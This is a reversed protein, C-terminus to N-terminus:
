SGCFIGPQYWNDQRYDVIKVDTTGRRLLDSLPQMHDFGCVVLITQADMRSEYIKSLMFQERKAHWSAIRQPSCPLKTYFPHIGMRELDERTTNINVWRVGHRQAIAHAITAGGDHAWEECILQAANEM